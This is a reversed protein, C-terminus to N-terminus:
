SDRLGCGTAAAPQQDDTQAIMCLSTFGWNKKKKKKKPKVVPNVRDYISATPNIPLDHRPIATHQRLKLNCHTKISTKTNKCYYHIYVYIM